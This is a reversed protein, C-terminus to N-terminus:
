NKNNTEVIRPGAVTNSMIAPANVTTKLVVIISDYASDKIGAIKNITIQM